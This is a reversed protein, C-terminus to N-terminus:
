KKEFFFPTPNWISMDGLETPTQCFVSYRFIDVWGSVCSDPSKWCKKWTKPSLINGYLARPVKLLSQFFLFYQMKTSFIYWNGHVPFLLKVKEFNEYESILISNGINKSIWRSWGCLNQTSLYNKLFINKSWVKKSKGNKSM